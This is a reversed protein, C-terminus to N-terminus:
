LDSAPRTEERSDRIKRLLRENRAHEHDVVIGLDMAQQPRAEFRAAVLHGKRRAAFLAEALSRSTLGSRM